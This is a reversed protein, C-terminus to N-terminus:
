FSLFASTINMAAYIDDRKKCSAAPLVPMFYLLQQFLLPLQM